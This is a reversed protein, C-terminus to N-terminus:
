GPGSEGPVAPSKAATVAKVIGPLLNAPIEYLLAFLMVPPSFYKAALLISLGVNVYILGVSLSIRKERTLPFFLFGGSLGLVIGLVMVAGGYLPILSLNARIEPAGRAILGLLLVFILIVSYSGYNAKQKEVPGPLFRHLLHAILFPAIILQLLTKAMGPLDIALSAGAFLRMTAPLTLPSLLTTIVLLVLSFEGHGGCLRSIAPSVTAFPTASVLLVAVALTPHFPRIVLFLLGPILFKAIVLTVALSGPRRIERKLSSLDLSLFSLVMVTGLIFLSCDYLFDFPKPFLYGLVIASILFLAFHRQIFRNM